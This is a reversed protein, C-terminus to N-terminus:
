MFTPRPLDKTQWWPALSFSFDRMFAYKWDPISPSYHLDNRLQEFRLQHDRDNVNNDPDDYGKWVHIYPDVLYVGSPATSVAGLGNPQQHNLFDIVSSNNIPVPSFSSPRPPLTADALGPMAALSWNRSTGYDVHPYVTGVVVVSGTKDEYWETGLGQVLWCKGTSPQWVWGECGRSDICRWCCGDVTTPSDDVEANCCASGEVHTGISLETFQTDTHFDSPECGTIAVDNQAAQAAVEAFPSLSTILM